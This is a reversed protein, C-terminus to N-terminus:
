QTYGSEKKMRKILESAFEITEKDATKALNFLTKMESREAIERRLEWIEDEPVPANLNGTTLFEISTGLESALKVLMNIDPERNETFYGNLTSPSINLKKALEKQTIGIKALQEKMRIGLGM